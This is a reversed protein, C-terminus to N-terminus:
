TTRRVDVAVVLEHEGGGFFIGKLPTVDAFDRGWGLPIHEGSAIKDNTPDFDIWGLDPVFLAVWAHSADSGVLKEQGPPPVNEIYGSVYRCALGQSRLCALMFQAFDQCVGRKEAYVDHLPTAINTAGSQYDFDNFIRSNLDLAAELIPRGDTFSAATYERAGAFVQVLPSDFVYERTTVLRPDAALQTRVREWPQSQSALGGFEAASIHNEIEVQSVATVRMGDHPQRMTFYIIRNGFYDQYGRADRWGPEVLLDHDVIRQSYLPSQVARPALRAENYSLSAPEDYRYETTHTVHYSIM